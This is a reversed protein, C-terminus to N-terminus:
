LTLDALETNLDIDDDVQMYADMQQQWKDEDWIEFKNIQGVLRIKKDLKAHERLHSPIIFRGNKDLEVEDAHGLLLRKLKKYTPNFDPLKQLKQEISEWENLPYVVLCPSQVDITVVLTVTEDDDFCARYKAPLAMRGKTDLNIASAGRFM